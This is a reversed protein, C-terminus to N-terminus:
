PAQREQALWTNYLQVDHRGLDHGTPKACGGAPCREVPERAPRNVVKAGRKAGKGYARVQIVRAM